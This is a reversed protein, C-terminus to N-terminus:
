SRQESSRLSEDLVWVLKILVWTIDMQEKALM